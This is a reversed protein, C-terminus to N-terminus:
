RGADIAILLSLVLFEPPLKVLTKQAAKVGESGLLTFHYQRSSQTRVSEPDAHTFATCQVNIFNVGPPM